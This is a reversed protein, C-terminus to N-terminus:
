SVKVIDESILFSLFAALVMISLIIAAFRFAQQEEAENMKPKNQIFIFKVKKM